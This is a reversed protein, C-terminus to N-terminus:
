ISDDINWRPYTFIIPFPWVLKGIYFWLAQGAILLRDWFSFKWEPGLAGVNVKELWSTLYTFGIGILFSSAMLQIMRLDIRNEKWWFLLLIVALLSCTVTKSLLACIFFILSISYFIKPKDNILSKNSSDPQGPFYFRLFTYLSLLYFFGSLM